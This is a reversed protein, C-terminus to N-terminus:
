LLKLRKGNKILELKEVCTVPSIKVCMENIYILNNYDLKLKFDTTGFKGDFSGEKWVILESFNPINVLNVGEIMEINGLYGIFYSDYCEYGIKELDSRTRTRNSRVYNSPLYKRDICQFKDVFQLSTDSYEIVKNLFEPFLPNLNQTRILVRVVNKEPFNNLVYLVQENSLKQYTSLDCILQYNNNKIGELLISFIEKSDLRELKYCDRLDKEM